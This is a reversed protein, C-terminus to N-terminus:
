RHIGIIKLNKSSTASSPSPWWSRHSLFRTGSPTCSTSDRLCRRFCSLFVSLSHMQRSSYLHPVSIFTQVATYLIHFVNVPNLSKIVTLVFVCEALLWIVHLRCVCRSVHVCRRKDGTTPAWTHPASPTTPGRATSAPCRSGTEQRMVSATPEDQSVPVNYVETITRRVHWNMVPSPPATRGGHNFDYIYEPCLVSVLLGERSRPWCIIGDWEPICDSEECNFRHLHM